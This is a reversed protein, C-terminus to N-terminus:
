EELLKRIELQAKKIELLDLIHELGYVVQVRPYKTRNSVLETSLEKLRAVNECSDAEVLIESLTRIKTEM